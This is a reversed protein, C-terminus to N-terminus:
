RSAWISRSDRGAARGRGDRCRFFEHGGRHHGALGPVQGPDALEADVQGCARWALQHRQARGRGGRCLDVPASLRGEAPLAPQRLRRLCLGAHRDSGPRVIWFQAWAFLFGIKRGFAETLFVYDGGEKPYATALEAYCLAGILFVGRWNGVGGGALRRQSGARRDPPHQSLHHVRHHDRRHDLDLGVLDSAPSAVHEPPAPDAPDAPSRTPRMSTQMEKRRLPKCNKPKGSNQYSPPTARTPSIDDRGAAM